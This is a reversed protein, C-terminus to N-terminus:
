IQEKNTKLKSLFQKELLFEKFFGLENQTIVNLLVTCGLYILLGIAGQLIWYLHLTNLWWISAFMAAGSFVSKVPIWANFGKFNKTPLLTLAAVMIFLETVITAVAAGLGGNGYGQQAYPIALYNLAVNLLIAGLGCFAWSRQKDTAMIANGFIFDIYVLIVGPAFVKLLLVSPGYEDLGYFLQIINGAFLYFCIAMPIGAWIMYKLSRQFTDSLEKQDSELKSFIPFIVTSFISPLFMIVDFFKYAGGYWGVVSETTFISLMVTDVRYYIVAFISWLFYPLSTKVLGLSVDLSFEPFSRIIYPLFKLCIVLNVLVGVTMIVAIAIPGAGWFLATIAAVAIFIKQSIVGISPYEMMEHGQFCSRIARVGGRWLKSVGLIVILWKVTASYDAVYAFLLLLLMCVGWVLARIGMFSMLIHSTKEKDQAVEKPILYNGGFNIIIGMIMTISIALYLQGYQASGLYRPLYLLLVFSSVWTIVQSGLMVTTNRAVSKGIEKNM